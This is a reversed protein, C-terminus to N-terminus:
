SRYETTFAHALQVVQAHPDDLQSVDLWDFRIYDIRTGTDRYIQEAQRAM